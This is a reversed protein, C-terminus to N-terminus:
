QSDLSVKHRIIWSMAVDDICSKTDPQFIEIKDARTNRKPHVSRTIIDVETDNRSLVSAVIRRVSKMSLRSGLVHAAPDRCECQALLVCM